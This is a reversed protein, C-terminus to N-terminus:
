APREGIRADASGSAGFPVLDVDCRELMQPWERSALFAHEACRAAILRDPSAGREPHCMILGGDEISHLWRGMRRRYPVRTSFDYVGAFDSNSAIGRAQLLERLGKAGLLAITQAKIGRTRRTQTSRVAVHKGYRDELEDVLVRAVGPLQHVHQHGDLYAPACAFLDEFRLMQDRIEGRLAREDISYPLYARALWWRLTGRAPGQPPETLNLHLGLSVRYAANCLGGAHRAVHPGDVVCSVSSVANARVLEVISECGASTLGFDDACVVIRRRIEKAAQTRTMRCRAATADRFGM